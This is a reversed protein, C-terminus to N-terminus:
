GAINPFRKELILRIGDGRSNKWGLSLPNQADEFAIILSDILISENGSLSDRPTCRMISVCIDRILTINARYTPMLPFNSGSWTWDEGSGIGSTTGKSLISFVQDVLFGRLLLLQRARSFTFNIERCHQVISKFAERLSACVCPRARRNM